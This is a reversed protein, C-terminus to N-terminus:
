RVEGKCDPEIGGLYVRVADAYMTKVHPMQHRADDLESQPLAGAEIIMDLLAITPRSKCVLAVVQARFQAAKAPTTRALFREFQEETPRNQDPHAPAAQAAFVTAALMLTIHGSM